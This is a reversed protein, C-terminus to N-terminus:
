AISRTATQDPLTQDIPIVITFTTGVNQQSECNLGGGHMQIIQYSVSLGLGTGQGIPKTTFFPDFVRSLHEPAIGQGNDRIMIQVAADGLNQTSLTILGPQDRDVLADIANSILGMFVQNLQNAFCEVLPLTGYDKTITIPQGHGKLRHQLLMLTSDLGDHINVRKMAAEDLRSFNRLSDVIARIRNTGTEMSRLIKPLDQQIYDLDIATAAKQLSASPTIHETQYQELVHLLAQTYDHLPVLNAHIFNVPNNFEHAIGAVLQGMSAMKESHILQAQTGRLERLLQQLEQSHEQMQQNMLSEAALNAEVQQRDRIEQKVRGFMLRFAQFLEGLEDQRQEQHEQFDFEYDDANIVDGVWLLDDRLKQLPQIITLNVALMATVTVVISILLVLGMIRLVYANLERHVLQQDIPAQAIRAVAAQETILEQRRRQYSPVLVVLEIAVVSAFVWLAVKRALPSRWLNPTFSFHHLVLGTAYLNVRFDAM